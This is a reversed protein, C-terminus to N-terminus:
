RVSPCRSEVEFPTFISDTLQLILICNSREMGDRIEHTEDHIVAVTDTLHEIRGANLFATEHASVASEVLGYSAGGALMIFGTFAAALRVSDPINELM